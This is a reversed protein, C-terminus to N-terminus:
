NNVFFLWESFDSCFIIPIIQQSLYELESVINHYSLITFTRQSDPLSLYDAAAKVDAPSTLSATEGYSESWRQATSSGVLRSNIKWIRKPGCGGGGRVSLALVGSRNGRPQTTRSRAQNGRPSSLLGPKAKLLNFTPAFVPAEPKVGAAPGEM